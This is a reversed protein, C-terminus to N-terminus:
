RMQAVPGAARLASKGLLMDVFHEVIRKIDRQENKGTNVVFGDFAMWSLFAILSDEVLYQQSSPLSEKILQHLFNECWQLPEHPKEVDAPATVIAHVLNHAFGNDELPIDNWLTYFIYRLRDGPDKIARAEDGLRDMRRMLRPIYVEYFLLLKSPFYVYLNSTATGALAAIESMRCKEYGQKRFLRYASDLIAERMEPKKMQSM